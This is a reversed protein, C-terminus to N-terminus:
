QVCEIGGCLLSWHWGRGVAGPPIKGIGWIRWASWAIPERVTWKDADAKGYREVIRTEDEEGVDEYRQEVIVPFMISARNDSHHLGLWHGIEHMLTGLLRPDDWDRIAITTDTAFAGAMTSVGCEGPKSQRITLDPSDTVIEFRIDAVAAWSALARIVYGRAAQPAEILVRPERTAPGSATWQCALMLLPLILLNGEM